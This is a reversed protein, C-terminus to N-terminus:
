VYVCVCREKAAIPRAAPRTPFEAERTRAQAEAGGEGGGGVFKGTEEGEFGGGQQKDDERTEAAVRPRGAGPRGGVAPGGVGGIGVGGGSRTPRRMVAKGPIPRLAGGAVVAATAATRGPVLFTNPSKARGTAPPRAM